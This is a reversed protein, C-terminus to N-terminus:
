SLFCLLLVLSLGLAHLVHSGKYSVYGLRYQKAALQRDLHNIYKSMRWNGMLARIIFKADENM